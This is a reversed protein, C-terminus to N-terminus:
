GDPRTRPAGANRPPPDARPNHRSPDGVERGVLLYSIARDPSPPQGLLLDPYEALLVQLDAERVYAEFRMPVLSGDPRKVFLGPVCPLIPAIPVDSLPPRGYFAM